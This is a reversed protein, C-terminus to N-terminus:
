GGTFTVLQGCSHRYIDTSLKQYDSREEDTVNYEKGCSPCDTLPAEDPAPLMQELVELEKSLWNPCKYGEEAMAELRWLDMFGYDTLEEKSQLDGKTQEEMMEAQKISICHVGDEPGSPSSAYGFEKAFLCTGCQGDVKGYGM